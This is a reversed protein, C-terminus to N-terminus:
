SASSKVAQEVVVLCYARGALVAQRIGVTPWLNEALMEPAVTRPKQPGEPGIVCRPAGSSGLM